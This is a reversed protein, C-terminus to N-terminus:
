RLAPPCAVATGASAPVLEIDAFRIGLTGATGIRFVTDVRSLDAGAAGFCRLPIRLTRWEGYPLGRLLSAIEVAGGGLSLTVGSSPAQELMVDIALAYGANADRSLDIPQKSRLYVDGGQGTWIVKRREGPDTRLEVTKDSGLEWPAKPGAAFFLDRRKPDVGATDVPLEPLTARDKHTLGFGFPFLPDYIASGKNLGVQVPTRPWSFSLKGKFDHKGFLVDAIGQGETGPLFAAVFADSANLFPNVWLPRGSLFLSVVPIGADKLRRLLALDKDNDYIIHRVDGEWEAYPNEGFVVIAVDPKQQFSGDPTLEAQGGAADVVIRIGSWISTAGPFDSNSNGDGQWSITWGGCQKPINHAGDGTVLVRRAPKIPLVGGNNKLLVISERVAQRAVARHERSGFRMGEKAAPRQSPKGASFLGARMKVRLIRRVADDVRSQPIAGSRVKALTNDYLAKWDDPVMYMDLGAILSAPCNDNTCGPVQAHGNWDGIIFGDFGMRQKLVDTLLERYGHMERGNWSSQSVMVTNVGAQISSVYGPAHIDRLETESVQTDNQDKGGVTGGDGLFHKATAVTKYRGRQIGEVMKGAMMRVVGPDESYSEYTRGWRDDRAVAVVPSFDWDIGTIAMETATIEGIRRILEANRTAGLGINHPFITAGVVNSHGHVADSGWIIPIANKVESTDMSAEYFRDALALWDHRTAKRIDGPFGGGGNLVSGFHYKQVDEPKVSHVAPQMLQAVKEELTMKAMLADVAGEIRPDLAKAKALPWREPHVTTAAEVMQALLPQMANAWLQYGKATLHLADPMIDKTISADTALFRDGIDLYRTRVRDDLQALGQNIARVDARASDTASAGRPFVGLLLIQTRPLKRHIAEVVRTVGLRIDDPSDSGINNTGIMLVAVKPDIGDLEGNEIRWLVHQTKDGSIGFNAPQYKGFTREWIAKNEGVGWGETISDGLFVVGVNGQRAREVFSRHMQQFREAQWEKLAPVATRPATQGALGAAWGALALVVLRHRIRIMM